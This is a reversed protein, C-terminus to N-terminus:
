PTENLIQLIKERSLNNTPKIKTDIQNLIKKKEAESVIYGSIDSITSLIGLKQEETLQVGQSINNEINRKASFYWYSFGIVPILVLITAITYKNKFNM